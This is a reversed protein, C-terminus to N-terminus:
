KLTKFFPLCKKALRAHIQKTCGGRWSANCKWTKPPSMELIAQIKELNLEIRRHTVIFDLFRKSTIRFAYKSQNLKMCYKRLIQFIEELNAM